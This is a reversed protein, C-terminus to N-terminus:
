LYVKNMIKETVDTHPTYLIQGYLLPKLLMWSAVGSTSQVLNVFLNACFANDSPIGYTEYITQARENFNAASRTSTYMSYLAQSLLTTNGSCVIRSLTTFSLTSARPTGPFDLPD